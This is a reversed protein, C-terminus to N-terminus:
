GSASRPTCSTSPMPSGICTPRIDIDRTLQEALQIQMADRRLDDYGQTGIPAPHITLETGYAELAFSAPADIPPTRSSGIPQGGAAAIAAGLRERQDARPVITVTGRVPLLPSGHLVEALEGILVYQVSARELAQLVGLM